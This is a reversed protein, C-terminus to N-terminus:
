GGGVAYVHLAEFGDGVLGGDFVRQGGGEIVQFRGDGAYFVEAAVALPEAAGGARAVIDDDGGHLVGALVEGVGDGVGAHVADRRGPAFLKKLAPPLPQLSSRMAEKVKEGREKKREEMSERREIRKGSGEEWGHAKEDEEREAQEQRRSSASLDDAFEHIHALVKLLQLLRIEHAAPHHVEVRGCIPLADHLSLPCTRTPAAPTF